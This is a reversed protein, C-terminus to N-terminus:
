LQSILVFYHELMQTANNKFERLHEVENKLDRHLLFEEESKKSYSELRFLLELKDGKLLENEKQLAINADHQLCIVKAFDENEQKLRVERPNTKRNMM